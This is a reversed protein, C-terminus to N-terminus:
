SGEKLVGYPLRKPLREDSIRCVHGAWRLQSRKLMAHVSEMRQLVETDPVRDQWKIYLLNRLCRMHFSNLKKAHRSYLTWSECAYLLSTLVVARYVKLKNQLSTERREWVRDCFSDFATGARAIRYSVEDDIIVCRSLTSGLNVFKDAM